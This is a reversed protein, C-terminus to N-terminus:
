ECLFRYMINIAAKNVVALLQFCSPHGKIDSHNSVDTTCRYLALSSLSLFPYVISACLLKSPDGLIIGLFFVIGFSQMSYSQM